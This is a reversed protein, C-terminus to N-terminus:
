RDFEVIMATMNDGGIGTTKSPHEKACCFEMMEEVIGRLKAARNGSTWSGRKNRRESVFDCAEQNTMCDWIGDCGLFFFEDAPTVDFARVDPEATIIQAAQAVDKNQKYKLDGLSRSLNLNGNIRGAPTIFGGAGHIRAQEIAQSPKHDESLAVAQGGRCMIGRSDGANACYLKDDVILCVVSTCGAQIRHDSLSCVMPGGGGGGGGMRRRFVSTEVM